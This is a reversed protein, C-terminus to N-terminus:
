GKRAPILVGGLGLVATVAGVVGLWVTKDRFDDTFFHNVQDGATDSQQYAIVMCIIGGALM